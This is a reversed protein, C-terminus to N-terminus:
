ADAKKGCLSLARLGDFTNNLAVRAVTARRVAGNIPVSFLLGGGVESVRALSGGKADRIYACKAAHNFKAELFRVTNRKVNGM